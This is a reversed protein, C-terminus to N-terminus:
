NQESSNLWSRGPRGPTKSHYRQKENAATKKWVALPVARRCAVTEVGARTRCVSAVNLIHWCVLAEEVTLPTVPSNCFANTYYPDAPWRFSMEGSKTERGVALLSVSHFGNWGALFGSDIDILLYNPWVWRWFTLEMPRLKLRRTFHWQM